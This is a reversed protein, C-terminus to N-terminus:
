IFCKYKPTGTPRRAPRAQKEHIYYFFSTRLLGTEEIIYGTKLGTKTFLAYIGARGWLIGMYPWLAPWVPVRVPRCAPLSYASWLCPRGYYILGDINRSHRTRVAPVPLRPIPPPPRHSRDARRQHFIQRGRRSCHEQNYHFSSYHSEDVM